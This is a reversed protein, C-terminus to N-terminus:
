LALEFSWFIMIQFSLSMLFFTIEALIVRVAITIIPSTIFGFDYSYELSYSLVNM